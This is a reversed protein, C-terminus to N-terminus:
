SCSWVTLVLVKAPRQRCATNWPVFFIKMWIIPKMMVPQENLSKLKSDNGNISLTM